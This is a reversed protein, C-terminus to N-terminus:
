NSSSCIWDNTTRKTKFIYLFLNMIGLVFGLGLFGYSITLVAVHIILWYSKLVPTLNTLQPDYSSHSATMLIFIGILIYSGTHDQFLPYLQVRGAINGLRGVVFSRLWQEM